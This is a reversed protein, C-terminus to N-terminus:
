KTELPTSKRAHFKALEAFTANEAQHETYYSALVAHTPQHGPDISLVSNLWVLGQNPSVHELLMKGVAYRAEANNPQTKLDDIMRECSTLAAQTAEVQKSERAAAEFRGLQRLAAAYSYRTRWDYPHQKLAAEFSKAAAEFRDSQLDIQGAESLAQALASDGPDGVLRYAEVLRGTPRALARDIMARAEDLRGLVRLCRAQGVLAPQPELLLPEAQQYATLSEEIKQASVLLRGLNYAAPGHRPALALAKRFEEIAGEINSRHELLRGRLYHPQPDDAFDAQWITLIQLADDLRYTAICGLAMAECIAPLDDGKLLLRSLERQLNTTNGSEAEALWQEIDLKERPAGAVRAAKLAAEMQPYRGLKRDIRATALLVEAQGAGLRQAWALDREVALWDQRRLATEVRTCLWGPVTWVVVPGAVVLLVLLWLWWRRRSRVRPATTM